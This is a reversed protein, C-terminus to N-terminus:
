LTKLLQPLNTSNTLSTIMPSVGQPATTNYPNLNSNITSAFMSSMEISGPYQFQQGFFFVQIQFALILLLTILSNIVSPGIRHGSKKIYYTSYLFVFFLIYIIVIMIYIYYMDISQDLQNERKTLVDLFIDSTTQGLGKNTAQFISTFGSSNLFNLLQNTELPRIFFYFLIIEFIFLLISVSTFVFLGKLFEPQNLLNFFVIKSNNKENVNTFEPHIKVM